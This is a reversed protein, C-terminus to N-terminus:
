QEVHLGEEEALALLEAEDPIDKGPMDEQVCIYMYM